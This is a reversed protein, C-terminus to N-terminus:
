SALCFAKGPMARLELHDTGNDRVVADDIPQTGAAHAHDVAGLIEAEAAVDRQLEQGLRHRGIREGGLPELAFGAGGRGEVVGVDAGEVVDALVFAAAEDDHLQDVPRREVLDEAGPRQGTSRTMSMAMVTASASSAACVSPMRWRSMLGPLMKMVLRPWTFTTSKPRALIIGCRLPRVGTSTVM